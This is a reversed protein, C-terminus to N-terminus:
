MNARRQLRGDADARHFIVRRGQAAAVLIEFGHMSDLLLINHSAFRTVSVDSTIYSQAPTVDAHSIGLCRMLMGICHEDLRADRTWIPGCIYPKTNGTFAEHTKFSTANQQASEFQREPDPLAIFAITVVLHESVDWAGVFVRQQTKSLVDSAM